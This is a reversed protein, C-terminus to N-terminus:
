LALRGRTGFLVSGSSVMADDSLFDWVRPTNLFEQIVEGGGGGGM